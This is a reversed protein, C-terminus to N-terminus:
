TSLMSSVRVWVCKSRKVTVAAYIRKRPTLKVALLEGEIMDPELQNDVLVACALHAALREVATIPPDADHHLAAIWGDLMPKLSSAISM